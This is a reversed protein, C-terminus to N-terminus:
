RGKSKERITKTATQFVVSSVNRNRALAALDKAQLRGVLGVGISPPCRPNNVLAVQVPYKRMWEKNNAMERLVDAHLNRNGAYALVEADTLRGSKVVAGAVMKSRDRILIARAEKNGLYALKIKKGTSMAAIKKEISLKEDESAVGGSREELLDLSFDDDDKFDFSFGELPQKGLRELDFLELKQRAELMPSARGELAAQVEADLDFVPTPPPAGRQEPLPPLCQNMRLFGTVREVVEEPCAPNNYLAVAIDPTVLLREHLDAVHACTGADARQCLRVATRDNTNRLELLRRDLEPQDTVLESLFELVKGHARQSLDKVLNPIRRVSAAAAERLERDEGAGTALVYLLTLQLEPHRPDAGGARALRRERPADPKVEEVLDTPIELKDWPIDAIM